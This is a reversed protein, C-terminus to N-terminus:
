EVDIVLEEGTATRDEIQLQQHERRASSPEPEPSASSTAPAAAIDVHRRHLYIRWGLFVLFCGTLLFPSVAAGVGGVVLTSVCNM